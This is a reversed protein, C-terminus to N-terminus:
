CMGREVEKDYMVVEWEKLTGVTRKFTTDVFITKALHIRTLLFPNATLIIRGGHITTAFGHIYREEIPKELDKNMLHITGIPLDNSFTNIQYLVSICVLSM